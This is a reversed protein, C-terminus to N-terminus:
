ADELAEEPRGPELDAALLAKVLQVPEHLELEGPEVRLGRYGAQASVEFTARGAVFVM